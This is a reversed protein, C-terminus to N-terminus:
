PVLIQVIFKSIDDAKEGRAIAWGLAGIITILLMGIIGVLAMARHSIIKTVIHRVKQDRAFRQTWPQLIYITVISLVTFFNGTSEAREEHAHSIHSVGYVDLSADGTQLAAIGWVTGAILCFHKITNLKDNDRWWFLQVVLILCYVMRLAIPFHVILPHLQM